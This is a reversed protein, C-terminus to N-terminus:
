SQEWTVLSKKFIGQRRQCVTRLSSQRWQGDAWIWQWGEPHDCLASGSRCLFWLTFLSSFIPSLFLCLSMNTVFQLSSYEIQLFVLHCTFGTDCVLSSVGYVFCICSYWLADYINTERQVPLTSSSWSKFVAIAFYFLHLILLCFSPRNADKSNIQLM